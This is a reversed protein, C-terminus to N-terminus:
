TRTHNEKLEPVSGSANNHIMMATCNTEEEMGTLDSPQSSTVNSTIMAASFPTSSTLENNSYTVAKGAM